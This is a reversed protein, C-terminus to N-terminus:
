SLSSSWTLKYVNKSGKICTFVFGTIFPTNIREFSNDIAVVGSVYVGASSTEIAVYDGPVSRKGYGLDEHGGAIKELRSSLLDPRDIAAVIEFANKM